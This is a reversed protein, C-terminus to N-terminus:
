NASNATAVSVACAKSLEARYDAVLARAIIRALEEALARPIAPASSDTETDDNETETM